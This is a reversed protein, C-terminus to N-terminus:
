HLIKLFSEITDAKLKQETMKVATELRINAKGEITGFFRWGAEGLLKNIRIRAKAEKPM